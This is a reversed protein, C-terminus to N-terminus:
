TAEDRTRAAEPQPLSNVCCLAREKASSQINNPTNILIFKQQSIRRQRRTLSLGFLVGGDTFRCLRALFNLHLMDSVSLNLFCSCLFFIFVDVVILSVVVFM